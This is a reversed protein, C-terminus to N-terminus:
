ARVDFAKPESVDEGVARRICRIAYTYMQVTLAQLDDGSNGPEWRSSWEIQSNAGDARVAILAEYSTWPLSPHASMRYTLEHRLPDISVLTEEVQWEGATMSRIAGVGSGRTRYNEVPMIENIGGFNAIVSWVKEVPAAVRGTVVTLGM